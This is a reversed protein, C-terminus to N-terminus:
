KGANQIMKKHIQNITKQYCLEQFVKHYPLSMVQEENMNMSACVSRIAPLHGFRSMDDVGAAKEKENPEYNLEAHEVELLQTFEEVVWTFGSAINLFSIDFVKEPSAIRYVIRSIETTIDFDKLEAFAMKMEIIDSYTFDWLDYHKPQIKVLNKGVKLWIDKTPKTSSLLMDYVSKDGGSLNLYEGITIHNLASMKSSKNSNRWLRFVM